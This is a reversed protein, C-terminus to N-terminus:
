RRRTRAKPPVAAAECRAAIWDALCSLQAQQAADPVTPPASQPAPAFLQLLGLGRLSSLVLGLLGDRDPEAALEPFAGFFGEHMRAQVIQRLEAIHGLVEPQNRCGLYINWAVIFRPQAYVLIWVAQVFKAARERAPLAPSPWLEGSRMTSEILESLVNMMLVAKSEFHHQVAGSTMGASKALEHISMEELSRHQIVDIATAILHQRTAASREAHTRRAGTKPSVRHNM